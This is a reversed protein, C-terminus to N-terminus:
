NGGGYFTISELKGNEGFIKDMTFFASPMLSYNTMSSGNNLNLIIKGDTDAPKLLVRVNYETLVKVTHESGVLVMEVINGGEGRKTIEIDELMGISEIERSRYVGDVLTKIAWKNATYRSKLMSNISNSLQETTMSVNWRFWSFQSDYSEVNINKFFVDANEEKSLDGYSGSIYQKQSKLYKSTATPFEKTATNMWVEGSNATMGASTSFFNASIVAGNYSLVKGKTENVAKTSIESEITNNYVQSQVSDDVNAGYRYYKNSFIQNYAYSRATVAQVKAAELGYSSPMESPVVYYLYEEIGLENVISYGDEQRAIELIGRYSPVGQGRSISQIELRGKEDTSYLYIRDANEFYQGDNETNIEIVEGKKLTKETDGYKMIYDANVKFKINKHVLETFGTNGILVRIKEPEYDKVIVAACIKGNKLYYEGIDTGVIFNKMNKASLKGDIYSYFKIDQEAEKIGSELEIYEKDARLIKEGSIKETITRVELINGQNIRLDIISSTFSNIDLVMNEKTTYIREAGNVFIKVYNEGYEQLYAGTIIPETEVVKSFAIIDGEKTYVQIRCDIYTDLMLGDFSYTGKDSVLTWEACNADNAPTSLIVIEEKIVDKEEMVELTQMYLNLWLEYSIPKDAIDETIKIKIKNNLNIKNLLIQAEQITLPEEPRFKEESGVMYGQMYVMNIYPAYWMEQSVDKFEMEFETKKVTINDNFALAIMKAVAARTVPINNATDPIDNQLNEELITSFEMNEDKNKIDSYSKEISSISTGCGCFIVLIMLFYIIKKM